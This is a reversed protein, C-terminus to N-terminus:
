RKCVGCTGGAKACYHCYRCSGCARCPDAGVCTTFGLGLNPSSEATLTIVCIVSATVLFQPFRRM